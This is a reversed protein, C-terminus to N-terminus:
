HSESIMIIYAKGKGYKCMDIRIM